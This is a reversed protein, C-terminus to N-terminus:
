NKKYTEVSIGSSLKKLLTFVNFDDDPCNLSYYRESNCLTLRFYKQILCM